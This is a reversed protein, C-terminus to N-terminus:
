VKINEMVCVKCRGVKEAASGPKFTGRQRDHDMNVLWFTFKDAFFHCDGRGNCEIYPNTKYHPLCSGPSALDQGGGAAGM